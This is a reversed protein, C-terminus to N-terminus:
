SVFIPGGTLSCGLTWTALKAFSVYKSFPLVNSFSLENQFLFLNQFHFSMKNIYRLGFDYIGLVRFM